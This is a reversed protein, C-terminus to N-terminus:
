AIRLDVNMSVTEPRTWRSVNSPRYLVCGLQDGLPSLIAYEAMVLPTMSIKRDIRFAAFGNSEGLIM